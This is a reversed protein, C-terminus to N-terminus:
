GGTGEFVLTFSSMKPDNTKVLSYKKVMKCSATNVKLTIKGERGPPIAKDYDIVKVGCGPSVKIIELVGSGANRIKFDHTIEVDRSTDKIQYHTETLVVSPAGVGAISPEVKSAPKSSGACGALYWCLVAVFFVRWFNPM